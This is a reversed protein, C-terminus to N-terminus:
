LHQAHHLFFRHLLVGGGNIRLDWNINSRIQQILLTGFDRFELRPDLDVNHQNRVLVKLSRVISELAEFM